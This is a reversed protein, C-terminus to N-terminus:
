AIPTGAALTTDLPARRAPPRGTLQTSVLQAPPARLPAKPRTLAERVRSAHRDARTPGQKASATTTAEATTVTMPGAVAMTLRQPALLPVRPLHNVRPVPLVSHRDLQHSM